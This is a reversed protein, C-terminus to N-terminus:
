YLPDIELIQGNNDITLLKDKKDLASLNVIFVLGLLGIICYVIGKM